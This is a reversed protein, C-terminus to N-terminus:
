AGNLRRRLGLDQAKELGANPLDMDCRWAAEGDKM